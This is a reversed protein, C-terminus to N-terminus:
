FFFLFFIPVPPIQIPVSLNSYESSLWCVMQVTAYNHNQTKIIVNESLVPYHFHFQFNQFM